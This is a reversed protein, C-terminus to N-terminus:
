IADNINEFLVFFDCLSRLHGKIVVNLIDDVRLRCVRPGSVPSIKSKIKNISQNHKKTPLPWPAKFINKMIAFKNKIYFLSPVDVGYTLFYKQLDISHPQFERLFVWKTQIQGNHGKFIVYFDLVSSTM